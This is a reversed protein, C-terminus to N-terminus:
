QLRDASIAFHAAEGRADTIMMNVPLKLMGCEDYEALLEAELHTEGAVYRFLHATGNAAVSVVHLPLEFGREELCEHLFQGLARSMEPSQDQFM